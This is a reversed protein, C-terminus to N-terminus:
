ILKELLEKASKIDKIQQEGNIEREITLAGKYGLEKLRGVLAPFNVRGEGLPKEVGLRRGDTPYEGDKAHVGRVYEGIIDLSDVPNAKGYMLLNAPDLNVGLNDLGIDQIARKLTIPTEQGTEFLFYQGNAKCRQAIHKLVAIVGIYDPDNPNEPLYGAHTAMDSVGIKKAFDSGKLLMQMRAFRFAPPVLGLTAQGEYFNWVAPRQWGCWFATIEMNHERVADNVIGALEDTMLDEDWCKIQCTDIGMEKIKWFEQNIDKSLSVLVGIKMESM